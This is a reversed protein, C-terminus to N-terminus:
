AADDRGRKKKGLRRSWLVLFWMALMVLTQHHQWGRWGQVEYDGLGLEDKGRLFCEEVPYRRHGAQAQAVLPCDPAANSLYYKVTPQQECSRELVLWLEPGPLDDREPFFRVRAFYAHQTGKSGERFALRKWAGPPLASAIAEVPQPGPEGPKVRARTRPRGSGSPGPQQVEPRALWGRTDKPVEGIYREGLEELGSLFGVDRGYGEDFTIWSHPVV